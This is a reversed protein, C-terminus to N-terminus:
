KKKDDADPEYDAMNSSLIYKTVGKYTVKLEADPRSYNLELGPRKDVSLVDTMNVGAIFFPTHLKVTKCKFGM